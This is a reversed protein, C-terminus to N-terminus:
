QGNRKEEDKMRYYSKKDTYIPFSTKNQENFYVKYPKADNVFNVGIWYHKNMYDLIDEAKPYQYETGIYRGENKYIDFQVHIYEQLRPNSQRFKYFLVTKM